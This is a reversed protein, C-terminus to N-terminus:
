GAAWDVAAALEDVDFVRVEGPVMWGFASISHRIWDKDSVVAIREWARFESLGVKADDWLAGFTWGEFEEGLVYVLRGQGSAELHARIAPVLVTEYDDDTVKGIAEVGLVTDPVTDLVRIV